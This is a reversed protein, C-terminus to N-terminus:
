EQEFITEYMSFYISYMIPLTFFIGIICGVLGVLAGIFGTLILGLIVLPSKTVLIFSGKIAAIANLKGLVVLPIALCTLFNVIISIISGTLTYGINTLLTSQATNFLILLFTTLVIEKLYPAKYYSFMTAINFEEDKEAAQAMKYFGAFFPSILITLMSSIILYIALDTGALNELVRNKPDAFRKLEEAGFYSILGSAVLIGLVVTAVLFMSGAYLAIKKYNEFAKNFVIGFDLTYGKAKIEKIRNAVNTM